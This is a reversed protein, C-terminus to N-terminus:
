EDSETAEEDDVLEAGDWFHSYAECHIVWTRYKTLDLSDPLLYEQEGKFSKLKAIKVAYAPNDANHGGIKELPLTSFFVKLDPGRRASFDEGLRLVRTGDELAVIEWAGQLPSRRREGLEGSFLAEEAFVFSTCVACLVLLIILKKM